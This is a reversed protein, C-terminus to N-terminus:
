GPGNDSTLYLYTNDAIQKDKLIQRVRGIQTDMSAVDGFYDLQESSPAGNAQQAFRSINCFSGNACGQRWEPTATWPNHVSHLWLMVMINNKDLNITNIWREFEDVLFVADITQSGNLRYSLNAVGTDAADDAFWYNTCWPPSQQYHGTICQTYPPAFCGCNPTCSPASAETCLWEDFGHEDPRSVNHGAGKNWFDGM